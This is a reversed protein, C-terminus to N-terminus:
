WVVAGHRHPPGGWPGACAWIIPGHAEVVAVEADHILGLQLHRYPAARASGVPPPLRTTPFSTRGISTGTRGAALPSPPYQSHRQQTPDERRAGITAVRRGRCYNGYSLGPLVQESSHSAGPM